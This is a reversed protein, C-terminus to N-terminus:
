RKQKHGPEYAVLQMVVGLGPAKSVFADFVVCAEEPARLHLRNEFNTVAGVLGLPSSILFSNKTPTAAIPNVNPIRPMATAAGLMELPLKSVPGATGLGGPKKARAGPFGEIVPHVILPLLM